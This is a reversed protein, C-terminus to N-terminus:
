KKEKFSEVVLNLVKYLPQAKDAALKKIKKLNDKSLMSTFPKYNKM